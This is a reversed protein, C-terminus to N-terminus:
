AGAYWAIGVDVITTANGIVSLNDGPTVALVTPNGWTATGDTVTGTPIAATASICIGFDASKPWPSFMASAAGAPVTVSQAAGGAAFRRSDVQIPVGPIFEELRRNLPQTITGSAM